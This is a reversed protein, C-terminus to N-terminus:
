IERKKAKQGIKYETGNILRSINSKHTYCIFICLIISLVIYAIPQSFAVMLFPLSVAMAISSLSVYRSILAVVLWILLGLATAVPSLGIFVGITTAVGKGGKFRLFITWIHGSVVALGLVVRFLPKSVFIAQPYFLNAVIVVPVIGKAVDLFLCAIGPVKGVTRMLNTSGVNGSGHDRIDIGKLLRAMIYGTPIAGILYAAALALLAKFWIM